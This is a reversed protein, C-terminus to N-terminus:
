EYFALIGEQIDFLQRYLKGLALLEDHTGREVLCGRHLVLIEDMHEMGLLRHTMQLTTHGRSLENLTDLLAREILPDLNATAEDLILIPANKLFARAIALRQREGGSLQLGQEGVRTKIGQPLQRVFDTLQAQELAEEIEAESAKPRALLLNARLTDNFIYTDQAVVAIQDRLDRLSFRRIDQGDLCIAGSQPDWFRLALRVLTSKGAGSPGVIAVRSGPRVTFNIDSLVERGGSQYTFTVHEFSLGYGGPHEPLPQPS